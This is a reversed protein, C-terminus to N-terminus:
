GACGFVGAVPTVVSWGTAHALTIRAERTYVGGDFRAGTETEVLVSLGEHADQTKPAFTQRLQQGYVARGDAAVLALPVLEGDLAIEAGNQTDSRFVLQPDGNLARTWLLAGCAGSKLGGPALSGLVAPEGPPRQRREPAPPASACSVLAAASALVIIRNM